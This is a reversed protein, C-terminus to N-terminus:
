KTGRLEKTFENISEILIVTDMIETGCSKDVCAKRNKAYTWLEGCKRCFQAKPLQELREAIQADRQECYMMIAEGILKTQGQRKEVPIKGFAFELPTPLKNM